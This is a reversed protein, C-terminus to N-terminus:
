AIDSGSGGSYFDVVKGLNRLHRQNGSTSGSSSSRRRHSARSSRGHRGLQHRLPPLGGGDQFGQEIARRERRRVAAGM